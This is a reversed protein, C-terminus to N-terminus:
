RTPVQGSTMIAAPRDQSAGPGPRRAPGQDPMFVDTVNDMLTTIEVSDVPELDIRQVPGAEHLVPPMAAPQGHDDCM